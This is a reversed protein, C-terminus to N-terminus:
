MEKNITSDLIQVADHLKGNESKMLALDAAAEDDKVHEWILSRVRMLRERTSFEKVNQPEPYGCYDCIGNMFSEFKGCRPCETETQIEKAM